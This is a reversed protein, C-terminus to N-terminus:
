LYAVGVHMPFDIRLKVRIELGSETIARITDPPWRFVERETEREYQGENWWRIM